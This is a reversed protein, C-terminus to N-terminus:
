RFTLDAHDRRGARLRRGAHLRPQRAELALRLAQARFHGAELILDAPEGVLLRLPAAIGREDRVAQEGAAPDAGGQQQGRDAEYGEHGDRVKEM